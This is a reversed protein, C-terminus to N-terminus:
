AISTSPRRVMRGCQRCFRAHDPNVARCVPDPCAHWLIAPPMAKRPSRRGGVPLMVLRVLLLVVLRLLHYVTWLTFGVGAMATVGAALLFIFLLGADALPAMGALLGASHSLVDIGM